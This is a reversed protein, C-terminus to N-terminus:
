KKLQEEMRKLENLEKIVKDAYKLHNAYGYPAIAYFKKYERAARDLHGCHYYTEALCFTKYAGSFINGILKRAQKALDDRLGDHRRFIRKLHMMPRPDSGGDCKIYSAIYSAAAEVYNDQHELSVGRNKWANHKERDISIAKEALRQAEPFRKEYDHCFADNNFLWYGCKDNPEVMTAYITIGKNYYDIAAAYDMMSECISGQRLYLDIAAPQMFPRNYLEKLIDLLETFRGAGKFKPVVFENLMFMVSGIDEAALIDKKMRDAVDSAILTMEEPARVFLEEAMNVINM